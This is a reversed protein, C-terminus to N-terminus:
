HILHVLSFNAALSKAGLGLPRLLPCAFCFLFNLFTYDRDFVLFSVLPFRLVFSFLLVNVLVAVIYILGTSLFIVAM